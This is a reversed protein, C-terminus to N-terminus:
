EDVGQPMPQVPSGGLIYGGDLRLTAGTMFDADQLLYLVAKVVDDHSGTRGVLTHNLIAEQQKKSLLGWGRTGQAHRSDVFGLMLENVRVEPAAQRAWSETLLGVGRNAACYGDNFILSAPGCRGILAAISSINIVAGGGSRKILPLAHHFVWRKAKLTTDFELDWQDETYEGHVVPMGGREINNILIHLQGYHNTIEEMMLSIAKPSRLDISLTLHDGPLATLERKMAASEEPWDFHTMIVTTGKKALTLGIERGIGKGGGLVLAVKDRIKM